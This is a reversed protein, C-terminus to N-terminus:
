IVFVFLSLSVFAFLNIFGFFEIFLGIFTFKLMILFIGFFFLTTGVARKKQFFFDFANQLGIVLFIGVVFLINGITLFGRDLALLVGLFSFFLGVSTIIAGIKQIDSLM